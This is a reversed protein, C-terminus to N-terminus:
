DPQKSFSLLLADNNETRKYYNEVTSVTEFGHKRYLRVATENGTQVHLDVGTYDKNSTVYDVAAKILM